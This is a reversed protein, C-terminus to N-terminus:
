LEHRQVEQSAATIAQAHFKCVRPLNLPDAWTYSLIEGNLHQVDGHPRCLFVFDFHARTSHVRTLLPREISIRLGTEEMLERILAADPDEHRDIWGGPLGWPHEVHYVHELLLVRGEDNVVVGAVGATFRPLRLRRVLWMVLDLLLPVRRLLAATRVKYKSDAGPVRNSIM